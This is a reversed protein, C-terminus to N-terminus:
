IAFKANNALTRLETAYSLKMEIYPPIVFFTDLHYILNFHIWTWIANFHWCFSICYLPVLVHSRSSDCWFSFFTGSINIYNWLTKYKISVKAIQVPKSMKHDNHSLLLQLIARFRSRSGFQIPRTWFSNQDFIISFTHETFLFYSEFHVDHPHFDM